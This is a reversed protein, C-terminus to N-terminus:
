LHQRPGSDEPAEFDPSALFRLVGTNADIAFFAQDSGGALAFTVADHDSRRGHRNRGSHSERAGSFSPSSTITPADNVAAVTVHVTGTESVGGSMVTYTFSDPGTYNAAPTYVVFDDTLDGAGTTTSPRRVM